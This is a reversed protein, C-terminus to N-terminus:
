LLFYVNQAINLNLEGKAIPRYRKKPHLKDKSIDRIDNFLYISSSICCFSLFALICNLLVDADFIFSFLLAAFVLLNKTWQQPRCSKLLAIFLNNINLNLNINQM